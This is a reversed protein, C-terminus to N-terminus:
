QASHVNEEVCKRILEMVVAYEDRLEAREKDLAATDMFVEIISDFDEIIRNKDEIIWVKQL